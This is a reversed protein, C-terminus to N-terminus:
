CVKLAILVSLCLVLTLISCRTVIRPEPLGLLEFHHHVPAMRFVKRGFVKYSLVQIIVSCTEIVFLGGSVLLLLEQKCLLAIFGLAAGLSLSGVDGMFLQAPYANFWLFGMSAGAFIAGAIVYQEANTGVVYAILSFLIFNPILSGIALGDLGDTLNVANSCGVLVLVGWCIYCYIPLTVGGPYFPISVVTDIGMIMCIALVAFAISCQLGFKTRASIGRKYTIKCWDDWCGAAGFAVTILLLLWVKMDFMDCWLIMSVVAVAIIFIGGMTPVGDKARHNAPTRERSNARFFRQAMNLFRGGLLLSIGFATLLGLVARSCICGFAGFITWYSKLYM